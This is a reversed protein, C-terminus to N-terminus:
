EDPYADYNDAINQKGYSEEEEPAKVAGHGSVEYEAGHEDKKEKMSMAETKHQSDMDDYNNGDIQDAVVEGLVRKGHGILLPQEVM